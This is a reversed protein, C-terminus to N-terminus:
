ISCGLRYSKPFTPITTSMFAPKRYGLIALQTHERFWGPQFPVEERFWICGVDFGDDKILRFIDNAFKKRQRIAQVILAQHCQIKFPLLMHLTYRLIIHMNIAEIWIGSFSKPHVEETDHQIVAFTNCCKWYYNSIAQPRCKENVSWDCQKETSIQQFAPSSNKVLTKQFKSDPNFDAGEKRLVTM